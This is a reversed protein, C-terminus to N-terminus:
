MENILNSMNNVSSLLEIKNDNLSNEFIKEFNTISVTVNNKISNLNNIIQENNENLRLDIQNILNNNNLDSYDNSIYNLPTDDLQKNM